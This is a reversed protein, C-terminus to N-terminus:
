PHAHIGPRKSRSENHIWDAVLTALQDTLQNEELLLHEGDGAVLLLKDDVSLDNFLKITGEPKVLQDKFGALLLVPTKEILTAADYNGKM